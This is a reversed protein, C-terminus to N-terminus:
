FNENIETVVDLVNLMYTASTEAAYVEMTETNIIFVSPTATFIGSTALTKTATDQIRWGYQWGFQDMKASTDALPKPNAYEDAYYLGVLEANQERILAEEAGLAEEYGLLPM